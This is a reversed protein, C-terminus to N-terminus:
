VREKGLINEYAWYRLKAMGGFPAKVTSAIGTFAIAKNVKWYSGKPVTKGALIAKRLDEATTGPFETIGYGIAAINHADSGAIVPLNWLKNMQATALNASKATPVSNFVEVADIKSSDVLSQMRKKSIGVLMRSMPHPAVAIGGQAHIEDVTASLGRFIHLPKKLFLGILHGSLTTAETGIIVEVHYGKRKAYERAIIAGRVNEHDTIAIVDLGLKQAHEVIAEPTSSGDSYRSHIHLEARGL